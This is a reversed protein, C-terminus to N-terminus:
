RDLHDLLGEVVAAGHGDAVKEVAEAARAAAAKAAGESASALHRLTLHLGAAAADRAATAFSLGVSSSSSPAAPAAKWLQKPPGEALQRQQQEQQKQQQSAGDASCAPTASHSRVSASPRSGSDEALPVTDRSYPIATSSAYSTMRTCDATSSSSSSSPTRSGSSSPPAPSLRLRLQPPPRHMAMLFARPQQPLLESSCDYPLTHLM